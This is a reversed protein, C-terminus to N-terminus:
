AAVRVYETPLEALVLALVRLPKRPNVVARIQVRASHPAIDETREHLARLRRHAESVSMDTASYGPALAGEGLSGPPSAM